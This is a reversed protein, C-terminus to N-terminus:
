WVKKRWAFLQRRVSNPLFFQREIQGVISEGSKLSFDISFKGFRNAMQCASNALFLKGNQELSFASRTLQHFQFGQTLKMLMKRAFKKCLHQKLLKERIVHVYLFSSFCHNCSFNTRLINIFNFFVKNVSATEITDQMTM